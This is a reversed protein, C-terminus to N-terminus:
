ALSAEQGRPNQGRGAFRITKQVGGGGDMAAPVLMMLSGWRSNSHVVLFFGKPNRSLRAMAQKVALAMDFDDDDFM